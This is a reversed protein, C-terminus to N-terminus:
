IKVIKDIFLIHGESDILHLIYMSSPLQSVIITGHTTGQDIFQGRTDIIRYNVPEKIDVWIRDRAPNPYAMISPLEIQETSSTCTTETDGFIRWGKIVLTDRASAAKSEYRMGKVDIRITDRTVPNNAWGMLTSSYSECSLGSYDLMERAEDISILEWNELSQDFSTAEMFMGRMSEVSSVDWDGLDQNFNYAESFMYSMDKVQSVDWDGLDQNFSYAESFIYSMDKVQSVDWDGLDQNFSYAERFMRSMTIVSDLDWGILNRNYRHAGFFMGSMNKVHSVDWESIDQTFSIAYSFM